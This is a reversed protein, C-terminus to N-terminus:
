YILEAKVKIEQVVAEAQKETLAMVAESVKKADGNTLTNLYSLFSANSYAKVGQEQLFTLQEKLWQLDIPSKLIRVPEPEVETKAVPEIKLEPQGEPKPELKPKPKPKPKSEVVTVKAKVIEGTTRDVLPKEENDPSGIDEASPLPIHFAKRLAMAEARKEAMRQPNKVIPLNSNGKTEVARVRGWGTFSHHAGKVYVDSRFFYDGEPIQWDEKEQKTAPRTEVGDLMETEQAKRYRGDISVFPRGQYITVEGMLPDFGYTIAVQALLLKEPQKLEQPFRAMEVRELMKTEDMTMLEKSEMSWYEKKKIEYAKDHRTIGKHQANNGCRLIHCNKGYFGGWAITLISQCEACLYGKAVLSKMEEHTIDEETLM